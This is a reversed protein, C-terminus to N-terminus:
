ALIIGCYYVNVYTLADGLDGPARGAHCPPRAALLGLVVRHRPGGALGPAM